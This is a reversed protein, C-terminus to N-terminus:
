ATAGKRGGKAGLLSEMQEKHGHSQRNPFVKGKLLSERFIRLVGVTEGGHLIDSSSARSSIYM